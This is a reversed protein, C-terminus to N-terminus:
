PAGVSLGVAASAPGVSLMTILERARPWYVLAGNHSGRVFLAHMIGAGTYHFSSTM